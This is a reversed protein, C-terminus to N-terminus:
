LQGCLKWIMFINRLNGWIYKNKLGIKCIYTHLHQLVNIRSLNTEVLCIVSKLEEHRLVQHENM